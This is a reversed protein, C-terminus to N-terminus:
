GGAAAPIIALEDGDDVPTGPGEMKDVDQENLFLKIFRKIEGDETSLRNRLGPAKRELDRVVEWVTNGELELESAGDVLRRLPGPILVRVPM